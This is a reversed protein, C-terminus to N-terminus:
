KKNIYTRSYILVFINFYIYFLITLHSGSVPDHVKFFYLTYIPASHILIIKITALLFNRISRIIFILSKVKNRTNLYILTFYTIVLNSNLINLIFSGKPKNIGPITTNYATYEIYFTSRGSNAGFKILTLISRNSLAISISFNIVKQLRKRTGSLFICPKLIFLKLLSILYSNGRSSLLLLQGMM